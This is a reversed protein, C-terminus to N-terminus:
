HARGDHHAKRPQLVTDILGYEYAEPATLVLEREIDRRIHTETKGAATALASEFLQRLRATETAQITLDSVQGRVADFTPQSISVRAHQVASRRGPQGAALLLAAASVAQGMCFTQIPPRIYQMTDYIAAMATLSGGPSNIYLSVPRDPESSELYLLQAAIDNAVADDIPTGIFIIREEFLKSYPNTEYTGYSTREVFSPLIRRAEALGARSNHDTNMFM